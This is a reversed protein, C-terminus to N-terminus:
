GYGIKYLWIDHVTRGSPSMPYIKKFRIVIEGFSSGFYVNPIDSIDNKPKSNTLFVSFFSMELSQTLFNTLIHSNESLLLLLWYQEQLAQVGYKKM